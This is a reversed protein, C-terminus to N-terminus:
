YFRYLMSHCQLLGPQTHMLVATAGPMYTQLQTMELIQEDHQCASLAAM